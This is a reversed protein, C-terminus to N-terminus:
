KAKPEVGDPPLAIKIHAAATKNVYIPDKAGSGVALVAGHKLVEASIGVVPIDRGSVRYVMRSTLHGKSGLLPDEDIILFFGPNRGMATLITRNYDKEDRLDVIILSINRAKATDALDILAFQNADKDCIAMAVTRDPWIEKVVDFLHDYDGALLPACMFAAVAVARGWYRHLM